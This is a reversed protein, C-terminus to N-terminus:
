SNSLLKPNIVNTIIMVFRRKVTTHDIICDVFVFCLWFVELRTFHLMSHAAHCRLPKGDPNGGSDSKYRSCCGGFRLLQVM